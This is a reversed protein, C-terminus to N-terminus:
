ADANSRVPHAAAFTATLSAIDTAHTFPSWHGAALTHVQLEQTWLEEDELPIQRIAVDYRGTIMQVPVSTTRRRPRFLKRINARYIRVGGLMDAPLTASLRAQRAPVGSIVRLVRRWVRPQGLRTLVAEGFGPVFLMIIYSSSLIQGVLGLVRRPTPRRLTKGAWMGWHDLNTGSLCTFSAFRTDAGMECVAEWAYIAGFDHGLLHVPRNPSVVAAVADLDDVLKEFTFDRWSPPSTSLGHGRQDYVVVHFREALVAATETWLVHTDPWGHLLVITENAPDGYEYVALRIRGSTVVRHRPEAIQSTTM